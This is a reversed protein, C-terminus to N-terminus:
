SMKMLRKSIDDVILSIKEFVCNFIDSRKKNVKDLYYGHFGLTLSNRFDFLTLPANKM